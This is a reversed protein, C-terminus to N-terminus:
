LRRRDMRSRFHLKQPSILFWDTAQGLLPIKSGWEFTFKEVLLHLKFLIHPSVNRAFCALEPKKTVRINHPAQVQDQDTKSKLFFCGQEASANSLCTKGKVKAGFSCFYALCQDNYTLETSVELLTM